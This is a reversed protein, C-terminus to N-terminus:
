IIYKLVCKHAEFRDVSHLTGILIGGNAPFLSDSDSRRGHIRPIQEVWVVLQAKIKRSFMASSAARGPGSWLIQMQYVSVLVFM